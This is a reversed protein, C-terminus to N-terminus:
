PTTLPKPTEPLEPTRFPRRRDGELRALAFHKNALDEFKRYAEENSTHGTQYTRLSNFILFRRLVLVKDCLANFFLLFDDEVL